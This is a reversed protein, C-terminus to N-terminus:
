AGSLCLLSFSPKIPRKKYQLMNSPTCYLVTPPSKGETVRRWVALGFECLLSLSPVLFFTVALQRRNVGVTSYEYLLRRISSILGNNEMTAKLFSFSNNFHFGKRQYKKANLNLSFFYRITCYSGKKHSISLPLTGYRKREKTAEAM